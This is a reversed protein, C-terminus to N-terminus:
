ETANLTESTLPYNESILGMDIGLKRIAKKLLRGVHMQSIHLERAIEMQSFGQLTKILIYRLRPELFLTIGDLSDAWDLSNDALIHEYDDSQSDVLDNDMADSHSVLAYQTTIKQAYENRPIRVLSGYDRLYNAIHGRIYWSILITVKQARNPDLKRAAIMLGKCGEQYLDEQSTSLRAYKHSYKLLLPQYRHLLEEFCEGCNSRQFCLALEASGEAYKTSHLKEPSPSTM